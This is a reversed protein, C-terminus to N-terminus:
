GSKWVGLQLSAHMKRLLICSIVDGTLIGDSGDAGAAVDSLMTALGSVIPGKLHNNRSNRVNEPDHSLLGPLTRSEPQLFHGLHRFSKIM